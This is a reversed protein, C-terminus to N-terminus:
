DEPAAPPVANPEDAPVPLNAGPIPEDWEEGVEPEAPAQPAAAREFTFSDSKLTRGWEDVVTVTWEGLWTPELSKVSYVRWRPGGVEFTVEAMPRGNLEWRHEVSQGSMGHFETFYYVQAHDNGLTTVSDIPERDVVSTTFSARSVHGIPPPEVERAEAEPEIGEGAGMEEYAGGEEREGTTRAAGSEEEAERGQEEQQTARIEDLARELAGPDDASEGQGWASAAGLLAAALWPVFCRTTM